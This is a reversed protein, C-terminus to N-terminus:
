IVYITTREVFCGASLKFTGTVGLDQLTLGDRLKYLALYSLQTSGNAHIDALGLVSVVDNSSRIFSDRFYDSVVRYAPQSTVTHPIGADALRGAVDEFRLGKVFDLNELSVIRSM